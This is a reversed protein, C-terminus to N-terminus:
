EPRHIKYWGLVELVRVSYSLGSHAITGCAGGLSPQPRLGSAGYGSSAVNGQEFKACACVNTCYVYMHMYLYIPIYIYMDIHICLCDSMYM